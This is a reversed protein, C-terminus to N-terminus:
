GGSGWPVAARWTDIQTSGRVVKVGGGLRVAFCSTVFFCHWAGVNLMECLTVVVVVVVVAV